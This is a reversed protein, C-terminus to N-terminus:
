IFLQQQSTILKFRKNGAEFYEPDIECGVYDYGMQYAAIRSSQSGMHTDLISSYGGGYHTIIWKYLQIPKQTPHIKRNSFAIHKNNSVSNGILARSCEFIKISKDISTFALEAMAFTAGEPQHKNWVIWGKAAPLHPTFYNAGWIIQHKTVRFLEKFYDAGAAKADWSKKNYKTIIGHGKRQGISGNRNAIDIGYEPDVIGLDFHRDPVNKMYEMCDMNYVQSSPM